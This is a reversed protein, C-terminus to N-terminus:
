RTNPDTRIPAAIPHAGLKLACMSRSVAQRGAGFTLLGCRHRSAAGDRRKSRACACATPMARTTPGAASALSVSCGASSTAAPRACSMSAAGLSPRRSPQAAAPPWPLTAPPPRHNRRCQRLNCVRNSCQRQAPPCNPKGAPARSARVTTPKRWLQLPRRRARRPLRCRRLPRSREIALRCPPPQTPPRQPPRRQRRKCCLHRRPRCGGGHRQAPWSRAARSPLGFSAAAPAKGRRGRM